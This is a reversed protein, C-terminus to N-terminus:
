VDLNLNIRLAAAKVLINGCKSKMMSSFATRRFNFYSSGLNSQASQVGSAAFFRDTERHTQLFLLRTFESHLRGSDSAIAPMFSIDNPPNNNCDTHYKRIKDPATDNLSKDIDNPNPYHLTGNLTPDSSSGFRDHAIHLDLVLPVPGVENALYGVLELDGCHHGRSRVVEQTKVTHTTRFLDSLQGIAWDHAKKTGSHATCTCLHDGLTDIKFKRFGCVALPKEVVLPIQTGMFTSFFTWWVSTSWSEDRRHTRIQGLWGMTKYFLVSKPVDEEQSELGAMEMRLVSEEVTAVVRQQCHSSIQEQRRSGIFKLELNSHILNIIFSYLSFPKNNNIIFRHLSFTAPPLFFWFFHLFFSNRELLRV